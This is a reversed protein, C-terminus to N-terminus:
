QAIGPPTLTQGVVSVSLILSYTNSAALLCPMLLIVM